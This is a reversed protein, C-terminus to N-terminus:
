FMFQKAYQKVEENNTCDACLFDERNLWTIEECEAISPVASCWCCGKDMLKNYKDIDVLEHQTGVTVYEPMIINQNNAAINDLADFLHGLQSNKEKYQAVMVTDHNMTVYMSKRLQKVKKVKGAFTLADPDGLLAYLDPDKASPYLRVEPGGNVIGGKIYPKGQEDTAQGETVFEFFQDKKSAWYEFSSPPADNSSTKEGKNLFVNASEKASNTTNAAKWNNSYTVNPQWQYGKLEKKTLCHKGFENPKGLKFSYHQDIEIHYVTDDELEINFKEAAAYIMWYESAYYLVKGNKKWAYYLPREKNRLINFTDEEKNYWTLAWAGEIKPITNEVGLFDFNFMLAESDTGYYEHDVLKKRNFDSLTGNHMGVIKGAEFPHANEANIAGVTAWRNHGMLAVLDGGIADRKDANGNWYLPNHVLQYPTVADKVIRVQERKHNNIYAVGTSHPGRVTDLKLMYDFMRKDQQYLDGVVGVLGCM